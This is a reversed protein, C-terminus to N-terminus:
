MSLKPIVKTNKQFHKTNSYNAFSYKLFLLLAILFLLFAFLLVPGGGGAWSPRIAWGPRGVGGRSLRSGGGGVAM